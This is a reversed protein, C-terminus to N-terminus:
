NCRVGVLTAFRALMEVGGQENFLVLYAPHLDTDGCAVPPPPPTVLEIGAGGGALNDPSYVFSTTTSGYLTLGTAGLNLAATGAPLEAYTGGKSDLGRLDALQRDQALTFGRRDDVGLATFGTAVPLVLEGHATTGGAGLADAAARALAVKLEAASWQAIPGTPTLRVLWRGQPLSLAVAAMDASSSRHIQGSVRLMPVQLREGSTNAFVGDFAVVQPWPLSPRYEDFIRLRLRPESALAAASLQDLTLAAWPAVQGAATVSRMFSETVAADPGASITRTVGRMLAAQVGPSAAPVSLRLQALTDGAAAAAVAQARAFYLPPIAVENGGVGAGPPVLTAVAWDRSRQAVEDKEAATLAAPTASDGGASAAYARFSTAGAVQESEGGGGGSCGALLALALLAPGRLDAIANVMRKLKSERQFPM